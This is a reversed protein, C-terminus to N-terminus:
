HTHLDEPIELQSSIWLALYQQLMSYILIETLRAQTKRDSDAKDLSNKQTILNRMEVKTFISQHIKSSQQIETSLSLSNGERFLPLPALNVGAQYIMWQTLILRFPSNETLQDEAEKGHWISPRARFRPLHLSLIRLFLVFLLNGLRKSNLKLDALTLDTQYWCIWIGPGAVIGGLLTILQWQHSFRQCPWIIGPSLWRIM